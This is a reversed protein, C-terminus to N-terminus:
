NVFLLKNQNNFGLSSVNVNNLLFVICHELMIKDNKHNTIYWHNIMTNIMNYLVRNCVQYNNFVIISCPYESLIDYLYNTTILKNLNYEDNYEACDINILNIGLQKVLTKILTEKPNVDHGEWIMYRKAHNGKFMSLVNKIISDHYKDKLEHKILTIQQETILPMNIREHIVKIIDTKTVVLNDAVEYNDIMKKACATDLIELCKDPNHQSPLLEESDKILTLITSKPIKLHYHREYRKKTHMLIAEMDELSPENIMVPTFRRSLASDKAIYERYENSTTAGIISLDGRALYPKLINAADISGDSAGTKVINHIEDIFLIIDQNHIVEKILNHMREEFEGRYKTGAILSATNIQIIKKNKLQKPVLGAKIRRALEEVIATKGVGSKGILLPNNKNCRLLVQMISKLEKERLMIKEDPATLGLDIGLSTVLEPITIEKIIEHIDVGMNQTIRLAIGDSENLLSTLLHRENMEKGEQYSLNYASELVIKLLPTYLITESELSASGMIKLLENRFNTYTLRHKYCVAKIETKKLLSLLLHETGVYPHKLTLMEEEADRLIQYVVQNFCKDM